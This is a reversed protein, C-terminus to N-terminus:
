RLPDLLREDLPPLTSLDGTEAALEFRDLAATLADTDAPLLAAVDNVEWRDDPKAYLSVAEPQKRIQWAPTRLLREEDAASVIMERPPSQTDLLSRSWVCAPDPEAGFWDALTATLDGPQVLRDERGPPLHPARIMLPVHLLETALPSEGGLQLHEGLPYGRPSTLCFLTDGLPPMDDLAGLMAALCADFLRVQGAYAHQFGLVLDPDHDDALRFEPPEVQDPPLPDDEDAFSRRLSLPADWPGQMGQAHIWLLFPSAARALWDIAQVFLMAMQTHEIASCAVATEPPPAFLCDSFHPALLHHAILAEDTLLTSEVGATQLWTPLSSTYDGPVLAHGGRLLSQQAVPLSPSDSLCFDFLLSESALRNVAPTEIWTNGYPGLSGAGLRDVVLIIANKEPM